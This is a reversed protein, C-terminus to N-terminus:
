TQRNAQRELQQSNGRRAESTRGKKSSRRVQHGGGGGGETETWGGERESEGGVGVGIGRVKNDTQRETRQQNFGIGSRGVKLLTCM